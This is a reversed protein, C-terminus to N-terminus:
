FDAGGYKGKHVENPKVLDAPLDTPNQQSTLKATLFKPWTNRCTALVARGDLRAAGAIDFGRYPLYVLLEYTNADFVYFCEPPTYEYAYTPTEYVLLISRRIYDSLTWFIDGAIEMMTTQDEMPPFLNFGLVLVRDFMKITQFSTDISDGYFYDAIMLRLTEGIDVVSHNPMLDEFMAVIDTLSTRVAYFEPIDSHDPM